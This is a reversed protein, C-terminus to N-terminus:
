GFSRSLRALPRGSPLVPMPSCAMWSRRSQTTGRALQTSIAIAVAAVRQPDGTPAVPSTATTAWDQLRQEEALVAPLTLRRDTVHELVPRGDRRRRIADDRDPGVSVCRREAVAALRDLEALVDGADAAAGPPLLTALHRALDARLWTSSADAVRRLAEDVMGDDSLTVRLRPSRTIQDAALRDPNFGAARAEATWHAHLEAPDFGGVKGPRSAVAAARQLRALTRPDPDAGDHDTAWRRVLETLKADVQASRESFAKRVPDPVCALDFVAGDREGWGVGLRATMEVRLAADYVWGITRQQYKLFRADLAAV